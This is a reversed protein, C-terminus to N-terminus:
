IVFENIFSLAATSKPDVLIIENAISKAEKLTVLREPIRYFDLLETKYKINNPELTLAIRLHYLSVTYAGEISCLAVHLLFSAIHHIASANNNSILSITFAYISIDQSEYGMEIILNALENLEMNKVIEKAESFKGSLVLEKIDKEM